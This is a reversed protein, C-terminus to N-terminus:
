DARLVLGNLYDAEPFWLPVPHDTPQGIRDVITFDRGADTAAGAVVKRFLDADVSGSCTFTMLHGGPALLKSASLNLDKYARLAKDVQSPNKALKPPDLVIVDFQGRSDRLRRLETFADGVVLRGIDVGNTEANARAIELAPASSDITTVEAAGHRAAIVSFSGTYGFVNLVRAGHVFTPLLARSTRQDVYFGTKQGNVVDVVYRFGNEHAFCEAPLRGVLTGSRPQLGERERLETESREHVATVGPLSAFFDAVTDRWQEAGVSTIQVVVIEGYRDVVLGPLHDSEGFVLRVADGEPVLGHRREVARRLATVVFEDDIAVDTDFTWVRARISSHPSYAASALAEGRDDVVVVTDGPAPDGTVRQVSGSMIWPHHRRLSKDRGPKLVLTAPATPMNISDQRDGPEHAPLMTTM